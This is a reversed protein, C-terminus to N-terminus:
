NSTQPIDLVKLYSSALKQGGQSSPEVRQVYDKTDKGDLTEFMPFPIFTTGEVEVKSTGVNFIQRIIEQLKSPHDNYGLYGLTTDSWSGTKKEDPFYIMSLVVKAPKVNETLKSVYNKGWVTFMDRFYNIGWCRLPRDRISKESNTKSLLLMNWITSLTPKLAIDNGGASIVLIDDQTIHDRIFEDQAKLTLNREGMTSEEVACNIAIYENNSMLNNIHYAVDPISVAPHIIDEYGKVADVQTHIWHKNDLSSDGALFIFKQKPNRQLFFRHVRELDKIVHGYYNGYFNSFTIKPFEEGEEIL